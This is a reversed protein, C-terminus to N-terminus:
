EDLSLEEIKLEEFSLENSSIESIEKELENRLEQENELYDDIEYDSLEECLIDDDSDYINKSWDVQIRPDKELTLQKWKKNIKKKLFIEINMLNNYYSEQPSIDDLLEINFLYDKNNYRIEININKEKIEIIENEVNHLDIKITVHDVGDSWLLFPQM